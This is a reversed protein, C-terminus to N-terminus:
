YRHILRVVEHHNEGTSQQLYNKQKPNHSRLIYPLKQKIKETPLQPQLTTYDYNTDVDEHIHSEDGKYIGQILVDDDYDAHSKTRPKKKYPVDDDDDEIHSAHM